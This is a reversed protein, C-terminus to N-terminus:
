HIWRINSEGGIFIGSDTYLISYPLFLRETGNLLGNVEHSLDMVGAFTTVVGTTTNVKRIAGSLRDAVYLNANGDYTLSYPGFFRAATGTGNVSGEILTSVAPGALTTVVGTAMTVRRINHNSGDALYLYTTGDSVLGLPAWFRAAAGTGDTNANMGVTGVFTSVVATTVNIARIVFNSGDTVYLVTKDANFAIGSPGNFTAGAGAGNTGGAGGTGALLAVNGTTM